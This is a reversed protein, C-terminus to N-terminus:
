KYSLVIKQESPLLKKIQRIKIVRASIVKNVLAWQASPQRASLMLPIERNLTRNTVSPNGAETLSSPAKNLHSWEPMSM